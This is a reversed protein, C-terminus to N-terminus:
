NSKNTIRFSSIPFFNICLIALFISSLLRLSVTGLFAKPVVRAGPSTEVEFRRIKNVMEGLNMESTVQLRHKDELTVGDQNRRLVLLNGDVDCELWEDGDIYSVASGWCSEYHRAVEVLEDSKGLEGPVFELLSVSKMMDAVAIIKGTVCLDLPCTSTRYSAIKKLSASVSSTEIYEFIVVTKVLAAVIKGECVGLCRVDGKLAIDCIKYPNRQADVGFVLIRGKVNEHGVPQDLGSTGVIFREQPEGHVNPLQARIVTEVLENGLQDRGLEYSGLEAFVVEDVLRFSSTVIEEGRILVRRITGLGFVKEAPSYAIRRVTADMPLTRVHTRREPDIHSIKLDDATALVIANPFAEANFPCVCTANEATVASYVIRGESGYILSAHECTAFINFTGDEKPLIKFNAEQTGLVISKKGSLAYTDKNVAFTIVIGDSMAVLLTPGSVEPPLIQLLVINRPIAASDEPRLTEGQLVQLTRLDLISVSGSQWLGVLGISASGPTVHVCAVQDKDGFDQRAIESLNARLDLSILSNGDASVMVFADNASAATIEQGNPPTWNAVLSGTVTDLLLVQAPTIQLIRGAPINAALLTQNSLSMGMAQELEEVDGESDFRFIRTELPYSVVLIDVFQGSTSSLSYLGIVNEMEGLQGIDELGVGSRVSRLSGSGYEGSGTVIRAQGSSYENAQGSAGRGGLDMITFDLIPAINPFTQVVEFSCDRPDMRLLQSDGGHSGLFILNNGLSVMAMPKSIQGLKRCQLGVVVRGESVVELVHLFGYDDALLWRAKESGEPVYEVWSVFIDAEPLAYEVMKKTEDCLYVVKTEGVIMLGGMLARKSENNRYVYHRQTEEGKRVPILLNAGPDLGGIEDERDRKADFTGYNGKEDALRYTALSVDGAGNTYLLALKPYGSETPVFASCRVFLETIRVQEPADLYNPSNKRPKILKILSLVGEFLELVLHKGSPDVLCRDLSQSDRMHKESLDVFSQETSLHQTTPNWSLTFYQFRETGIFLHDTSANVPRVKQLM